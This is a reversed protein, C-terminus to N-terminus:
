GDQFIAAMKFKRWDSLKAVVVHFTISADGIARNTQFSMLQEVVDYIYVTPVNGKWITSCRYVYVFQRAICCAQIM